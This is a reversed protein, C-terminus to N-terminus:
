SLQRLTLIQESRGFPGHVDHLISSSLGIGDMGYQQVAEIGLWEGQPMRFLHIQLDLNPFAWEFPRPQRPVVGNAMDSMCVLRVFDSTKQGEVMETQTRLWDLGKGHRQVNSRAEITQTFGGSWQHIGDFIPMNEPTEVTLDELGAIASSDSIMMRWTRAVVLTKGQGKMTSEILEITKGARISQTTIEIEGLAILGYIDLSIRGIRMTERPSFQELEACIVGTAPAMHQENPNWAGQAHITSQYRATVTGQADVQRSLLQYYASMFKRTVIEQQILNM